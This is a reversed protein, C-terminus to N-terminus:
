KGNSFSNSGDRRRPISLNSELMFSLDKMQSMISEVDSSNTRTRTGSFDDGKTVDEADGGIRSSTNAMRFCAVYYILDM